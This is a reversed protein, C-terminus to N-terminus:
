LLFVSLEQDDLLLPLYVVLYTMVSIWLQHYGRTCGLLHRGFMGGGKMKLHLSNLRDEGCGLLFPVIPDHITYETIIRTLGVPLHSYTQYHLVLVEISIHELIRLINGVCHVLQLSTRIPSFAHTEKNRELTM